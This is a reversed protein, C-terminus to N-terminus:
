GLRVVDAAPVAAFRDPDCTLVIVQTDEGARGLLTNMRDTRTPDAYGLADDLIVPVGDRQDVLTAAALRAIIALQEKTGDSLQSLALTRGDLTRTAVRLQDDLTIALDHGFIVRGLEEIRARLPARYRLRADDRHAHLTDRLLLLADAKRRVGDRAATAEALAAELEVVQEGLGARASTEISGWVRAQEREAEICRQTTTRVRTAAAEADAELAAADM